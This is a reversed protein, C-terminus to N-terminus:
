GVVWTALALVTLVAVVTGWGVLECLAWWSVRQVSM